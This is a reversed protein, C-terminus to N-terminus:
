SDVLGYGGHAPMNTKYDIKHYYHAGIYSGVIDDVTPIVVPTHTQKPPENKKCSFVAMAICAPLVFKSMAKMFLQIHKPYTFVFLALVPPSDFLM